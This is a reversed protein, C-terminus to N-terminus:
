EIKYIYRSNKKFLYPEIVGPAKRYVFIGYSLYEHNENFLRITDFFRRFIAEELTKSLKKKRAIYECYQKVEEETGFGSLGVGIYCRELGASEYLNIWHEMGWPEINIGMLNNLRDILNTPPIKRYFYNVDAIFGYEQCVRKYEQIALAKNDVFATSGGCLVLDFSNNQFPLKMADGVIFAIRKAFYSPENDLKRNAAEVMEPDIDLGIVRSKSLHTMEFTCFGTNCGIDLVRSSSSVFTNQVVIRVSEKGGPPRNEASLFAIFDVYSMEEIGRVTMDREM